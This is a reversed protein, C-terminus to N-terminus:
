GTINKREKLINGIFCGGIVKAMKQLGPLTSIRCRALNFVFEAVVHVETALTQAARRTSRRTAPLVSLM